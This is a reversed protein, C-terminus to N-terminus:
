RSIWQSTVMFRVAQRGTNPDTALEHSRLQATTIVDDNRLTQAYALAEAVRAVISLVRPVPLLNGDKCYDLLDKGKLFEMAIFAVRQGAADITQPNAMMTHDDSITEEGYDYM